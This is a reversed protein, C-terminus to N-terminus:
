RTGPRQAGASKLYHVNRRFNATVGTTYQSQAGRSVAALLDQDTIENLQAGITEADGRLMSAIAGVERETFQFNLFLFFTLLRKEELTWGRLDNQEYITTSDGGEWNREDLNLRLIAHHLYGWKQEFRRYDINKSDLIDNLLEIALSRPSNLLLSAWIWCVISYRLITTKM